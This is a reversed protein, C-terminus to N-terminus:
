DVIIDVISSESISIIDYDFMTGKLGGELNKLASKFDDAQVLITSKSKKEEGGGEDVSIFAVKCLFYKDEDNRFMEKYAAEKVSTVVLDGESVSGVENMLKTEADSVSIAMVIYSETVKKIVGDELMKRYKVRGEYWGKSISTSMHNSTNSPVPM